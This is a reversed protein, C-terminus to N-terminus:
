AGPQGPAANAPAPGTQTVKALYAALQEFTGQWGLKMGDHAGDFTAQEEPTANWASWEIALTTGGDQEIFRTTSLTERPWTASLPHRTIGGDEDSFSNVLVIREPPVIERYVFKGWMETGDPAQLCYHFMGGPRFDLKAAPMTFGKPGFWQMLRARETWARWVLDRPAAFTRTILFPRGIAPSSAATM